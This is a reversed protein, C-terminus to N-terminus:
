SPENRPQRKRQPPKRPLLSRPIEVKEARKEVKEVPEAKVVDDLRIYGKEALFRARDDAYEVRNGENFARGTEKDIYAQLVFGRM